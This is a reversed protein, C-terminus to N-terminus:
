MSLYEKVLDKYDKSAACRPSYLVIPKRAFTSPKMKQTRRIHTKFLPYGLKKIYEKGQDDVESLRDYQTVFCGCLRLDPNEDEKINDIQEKLEKLGDIAFDDITLPIMIDDSAVMSNITSINIDPANDIICYDYKDSVQNLAKKIRGQQPRQIDMTVELNAKLLSMNTTIMDLNPYDTKQIIDKTIPNRETMIEPVGKHNYNYLNLIKSANGQKDNDLLLVKYGEVAALIYAINIASITKAVGGKLNIISLIRM